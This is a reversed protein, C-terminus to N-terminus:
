VGVVCDYDDDDEDDSLVAAVAAETAAEDESPILSKGERIRKAHIPYVAINEELLKQVTAPPLYAIKTYMYKNNWLEEERLQDIFERITKRKEQCEEAIAKARRKKEIIEHAHFKGLRVITSYIKVTINVKEGPRASWNKKKNPGLRQVSPHIHSRVMDIMESSPRRNAIMLDLQGHVLDYLDIAEKENFSGMFTQPIKFAHPAKSKRSIQLKYKAGNATANRVAKVFNARYKDRGTPKGSLENFHTTCLDHHRRGQSIRNCGVASCKRERDREQQRARRDEIGKRAKKKESEDEMSEVHKKYHRTCLGIAHCAANKTCDAVSCKKQTRSRNKLKEDIAALKAQAEKKADGTLDSIYSKFCTRCKGEVIPKKESCENCKKRKSKKASTAAPADAAAAANPLPPLAGAVATAIGGEGLLPSRYGAAAAQVNTELDGVDATSCLANPNSEVIGKVVNANPLSAAGSEEQLEQIRKRLKPQGHRLAQSTKEVAKKDGIDYFLGDLARELFRGNSQRVTAVISKSIRLKEPKPGTCYYPKNSNVLTHYHLNGAHRRAVEGRGCLVDPPLPGEVAQLPVTVAPFPMAAGNPCPTTM